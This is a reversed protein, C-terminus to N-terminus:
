RVDFLFSVRSQVASSDVNFSCLFSLVQRNEAHRKRREALRVRGECIVHTVNVTNQRRAAAIGLALVLEELGVLRLCLRADARALRPKLAEQLV